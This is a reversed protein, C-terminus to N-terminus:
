AIVHGAKFRKTRGNESVYRGIGLAKWRALYRLSRHNFGIQISWYAESPLAPDAGNLSSVTNISTVANDAKKLTPDGGLYKKTIIALLSWINVTQWSCAMLVSDQVLAVM